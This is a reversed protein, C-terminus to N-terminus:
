PKSLTLKFLILLTLRVHSRFVLSGSVPDPKYETVKKSEDQTCGGSGAESM